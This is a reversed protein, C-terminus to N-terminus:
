NAEDYVYKERKQRCTFCDESGMESHIGSPLELASFMPLKRSEPSRCIMELTSAIILGPTTFWYGTTFDKLVMEGHIRAIQPRLGEAWTIVRDITAHYAGNGDMDRFDAFEDLEYGALVTLMEMFVCGLSFIDAARGHVGQEWVEPACYKPTKRIPADTQSHDLTKFSRSIGFDALYVRYGYRAEAHKKVLINAPKIDLHKRAASHIYGVADVLCGFFSWMSLISTPYVVVGTKGNNCLNGNDRAEQMTEQIEDLFVSLDCDAVPYLLVSFKKGQLYSGVLQVIHPHRSFQLHEVEVLAEDVSLRRGCVMSKRALLIRRCRVKDVQATLSAGIPGLVDFPLEEGRSYEVHQGGNAKGSWNLEQDVPLILGKEHVAKLYNSSHVTPSDRSKRSMMTLSSKASYYAPSQRFSQSMHKPVASHYSGVTFSTQPSNARLSSQASYYSAFSSPSRYSESFQNSKRFGPLAAHGLEQEIREHDRRTHFHHADEDQAVHKEHDPEIEEWPDAITFPSTLM